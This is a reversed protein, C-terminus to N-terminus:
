KTKPETNEDNTDSAPSLPSDTRGARHQPPSAVTIVLRRQRRRRAATPVRRGDGAEVDGLKDLTGTERQQQESAPRWPSGM